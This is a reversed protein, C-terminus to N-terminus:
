LAPLPVPLYAYATESTNAHDHLGIIESPYFDIDIVAGISPFGFLFQSGDASINLLRGSLDVLRHLATLHIAGFLCSLIAQAVLHIGGFAASLTAQALFRCFLM